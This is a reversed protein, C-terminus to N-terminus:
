EFALTLGADDDPEVVARTPVPATTLDADRAAPTSAGSASTQESEAPSSGSAADGDDVADGDSENPDISPVPAADADSGSAITPSTPGLSAFVYQGDAGSPAAEIAVYYTQGPQTGILRNAFFSTVTIPQGIPQQQATLFQLELPGGGTVMLRVEASSGATQIVYYDTDAGVIAGSRALSPNVSNADAPAGNPEVEAQTSGVFQVTYPGGGVGTESEIEVYRLGDINFLLYRNAISRQTTQVGNEDYFTVVLNGTGGGTPRRIEVIGGTTPDVVFWDVDAAGSVNGSLTQGSNIRVANARDDNPENPDNPDTPTPTPTEPPAPTPTEPPAPTPTEPPTPTPATGGDGAVALTYAGPTGQISVVQVYYTGTAPARTLLEAPTGTGVYESTMMERDPGYLVVVTVGTEPGRDYHVRYAMGAQLTVAFVDVDAAALDSTVVVGLQLPTATDFDNNPEGSPGPTPTPPTPTPTDDLVSEVAVLADIIGAGYRTDPQPPFGSPKTASAVLAEKVEAPTLERDAASIVLAAAGAVHPTAMSTGTKLSYGGATDASEVGVGPAAVNPVIYQTPWGYQSSTGPGWEADTQIVEGSSRFHIGDNVDSMGVSLTDYVNGPSGSTGFGSNGIAAIVLTGTSEANRVVPIFREVGIVDEFGLSMSMVDAGQRIAWEMGGVVGSLSGAGTDDMVKGHLLRVDPAVGINRGSANGGAVTGSVHTGHGEGDSPVSGQVQNGFVDFEAWGGAYTPDTLDDRYLGVDPHSVNVGTDLVAVTVGSGTVGYQDWVEPANIRDLGYTTEYPSVDAPLAQAHTTRLTYVAYNSYVGEVGEVSALLQIPVVDTDVEIVIANLLWHTNVVTVGDLEGLIALAPAQTQRAHDELQTIADWRTASPDVEASDFQLLVHITGTRELLVPDVQAAGSTDSTDFGSTPAAGAPGVAGSVGASVVVALTLILVVASRFLPM